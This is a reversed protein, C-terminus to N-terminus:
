RFMQKAKHHTGLQRVTEGIFRGVIQETTWLVGPVTRVYPHSPTLSPSLSLSLGDVLHTDRNAKPRM